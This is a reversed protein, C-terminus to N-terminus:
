SLLHQNGVPKHNQLCASLPQTQLCLYPVLLMLNNITLKQTCLTSGAKSEAIKDTGTLGVAKDPWFPMFGAM